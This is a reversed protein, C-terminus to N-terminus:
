RDDLDNLCAKWFEGQDNRFRLERDDHDSLFPANPDTHFQDIHDNRIRIQIQIEQYYTLIM